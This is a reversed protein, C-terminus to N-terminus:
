RAGALEARVPAPPERRAAVAGRKRQVIWYALTGSAFWIYPSTPATASDVNIIATVYLALLPAVLAALLMKLEQDQVRRVLGWGGILVRLNFALLLLLGPLGLEVLLFTLESEGNLGTDQKPSLSGAPGVTGIGAGLPFNAIYGPVLSLTGSRYSLTTHVIKGPAISDYRQLAGGGASGTIGIVVLTTVLGVAVLGILMGVARRSVAALAAFAVIALVSGVIATRGQSTILGVALGGALVFAAIRLRRSKAAGIFALAAPAAILALLGGFGSDSGLAFPRVRPAATQADFTLRGSTTGTGLVRASYGPGWNALQEPTLNFQVLSVAGNVATIVLLLLFFGKLRRKTRMVAYGLFFLPVFELHPRLSALSHTFSQASPNFVQVAVVAVWAVIWAAFPPVDFREKRVVKRALMGFVIAYLLVDRALTVHSSGTKLKIFGDLVGLYVMVVALTIETRPNFFLWGAVCLLGIVEVATKLQIPQKIAVVLAFLTVAVGAVLAYTRYKFSNRRAPSALARTLALEM